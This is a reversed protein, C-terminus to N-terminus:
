NIKLSTYLNANEVDLIYDMMKTIFGMNQSLTTQVFEMDIYSFPLYNESLLLLNNFNENYMAIFIYESIQVLVIDASLLGVKYLGSTNDSCNIPIIIDESLPIPVNTKCFVWTKNIISEYVKSNNNINKKFFQDYFFDSKFLKDVNDVSENIKSNDIKYSPYDLKFNEVASRISDPKIDHYIDEFQNKFRPTRIIQFILLKAFQEKDIVIKEDQIKSSYPYHCQQIINKQIESYVPEIHRSLYKELFQEDNNHINDYFYKQQCINAISNQYTKNRQKDHIYLTFSYDDAYFYNKLFSQPIYHQKKVNSM